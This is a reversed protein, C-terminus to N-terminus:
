ARALEVVNGAPRAGTLDLVFRAWAELAARKEDAYDHRNYIAAVGSVSGSAHNLVAEVVQVPFGLRAMGTAATRRLDHFGWPPIEVAEGREEAAVAEVRARLRKIARDYGCVPTGGTTTFILRREGRIRKVGALVDLAAESLPM